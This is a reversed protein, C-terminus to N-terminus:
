SFFITQVGSLYKFLLRPSFLMEFLHDSFSSKEKAEDKKKARLKNFIKKLFYFEGQDLIKKPLFVRKSIVNGTTVTAIIQEM